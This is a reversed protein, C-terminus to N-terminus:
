EADAMYRATSNEKDKADPTAQQGFLEQARKLKDGKLLQHETIKGRQSPDKLTENLQNRILDPNEKCVKEFQQQNLDNLSFDNHPAYGGELAGGIILKIPHKKQVLMDVIRDFYKSAPKANAYGKIEGLRSGTHWIATVRPRNLLVKGVNQIEEDSLAPERLSILRDTTRKSGAPKNGCHAMFAGETECYPVDLWTWFLGDDYEIFPEGQKIKKLINDTQALVTQLENIQGYVEDYTKDFGSADQYQINNIKKRLDENIKIAEFTQDGQANLIPNGDADVRLRRVILPEKLSDLITKYMIGAGGGNKGVLMSAGSLLDESSLEPRKSLIIDLKKADKPFSNDKMGGGIAIFGRTISRAAWMMFNYNNKTQERLLRVKDMVRQHVEESAQRYWETSQFMKEFEHLRSEVLVHGPM